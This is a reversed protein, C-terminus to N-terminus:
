QKYAVQKSYKLLANVDVAGRMEIGIVEDKEEVIIFYRDKLKHKGNEQIFFTVLDGHDRVHGLEHFSDQNLIKKFGNVTVGKEKFQEIPITILKISKIDTIMDRFEHEDAMWLVTRALFGSVSISHVDEGGKFTDKITVYSDSQCFAQTAFLVITIATLINKM